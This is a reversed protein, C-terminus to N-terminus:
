QERKMEGIYDVKNGIKFGVGLEVGIKGGRDKGLGDRSRRIGGM